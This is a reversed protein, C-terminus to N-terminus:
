YLFRGTVIRRPHEAECSYGAAAPFIGPGGNACLWGPPSAVATNGKVERHTIAFRLVSRAVRCRVSGTYISVRVHVRDGTFSTARFAGCGRSQAAAGSPLGVCILASIAITLIGTRM